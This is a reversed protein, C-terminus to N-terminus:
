NFRNNLRINKKKNINIHIIELNLSNENILIQM